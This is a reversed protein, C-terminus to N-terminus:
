HRFECERKRAAVPLKALEALEQAVFPLLDDLSVIRTLNGEPSVVPMRRVGDQRMKRIVDFIDSTELVTALGETMIDGATLEAADLDMAVLGVVIDRDTVIGVPIQVGNHVDVVVVAGVHYRRMLQACERVPSDRKAVVVADSCADGIQM